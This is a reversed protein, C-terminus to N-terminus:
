CIYAYVVRTYSADRHDRSNICLITRKRYIKLSIIVKHKANSEGWETYSRRM